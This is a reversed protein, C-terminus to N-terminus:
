SRMCLIWRFKYFGLNQASSLVGLVLYTHVVNLQMEQASWYLTGVLSPMNTNKKDGNSSMKTNYVSQVCCKQFVLLFRCLKQGFKSNCKNICTHIPQLHWSILLPEKIKNRKMKILSQCSHIILNFLCVFIKHKKKAAIGEMKKIVVILLSYLVRM